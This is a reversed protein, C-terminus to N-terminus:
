CKKTEWAYPVLGKNIHPREKGITVQLTKMSDAKGDPSLPTDIAFAKKMPDLLDRAKAISGLSTTVPSRGTSKGLGLISYVKALSPTKVRKSKCTDTSDWIMSLDPAPGWLDSLEKPVEEKNAIKTHPLMSMSPSSGWLASLEELAEKNSVLPM